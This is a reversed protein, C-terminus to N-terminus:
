EQTPTMIEQIKLINRDIFEVPFLDKYRLTEFLSTLSLNMEELKVKNVYERMKQYEQVLYKNQEELQNIIEKESIKKSNLEKVEAM